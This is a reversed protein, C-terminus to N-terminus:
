LVTTLSTYSNAVKFDAITYFQQGNYCRAYKEKVMKILQKYVGEFRPSQPPNIGWETEFCQNRLKEHDV